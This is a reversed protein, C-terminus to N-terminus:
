VLLTHCRTSTQHPLGICPCVASNVNLYVVKTNSTAYFARTRFPAPNLRIGLIAFNRFAVILKTIDTLRGSHFERGTSPNEDFKM